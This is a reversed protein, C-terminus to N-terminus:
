NNKRRYKGRSQYYYRSRIQNKIDNKDTSVKRRV